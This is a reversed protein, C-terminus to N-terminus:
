MWGILKGVTGIPVSRNLIVGLGSWSSTSISLSTTASWSTQARSCTVPAVTQDGSLVFRTLTDPTARPTCCFSVANWDMAKIREIPKSEAIIGQLERLLDEKGLGVKELPRQIEGPGQAPRPTTVGSRRPGGPRGRYGALRAAERGNGRAEDVYFGVFRAERLTLEGLVHSPRHRRRGDGSGNHNM